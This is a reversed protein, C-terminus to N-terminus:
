RGGGGSPSAGLGGAGGARLLDEGEGEGLGGGEAGGELLGSGSFLVFFKPMLIEMPFLPGGALFADLGTDATNLLSLLSSSSSIGGSALYWWGLM